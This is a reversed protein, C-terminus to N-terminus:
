AVRAGARAGTEASSAARDLVSRVEAELSRRSELVRETLDNAVRASNSELLQQLYTVCDRLVRERRLRGPLLMRIMGAGPPRSIAAWLRTFFFGRKRRFGPETGIEDARESVGAAGVRRVFEQALTV